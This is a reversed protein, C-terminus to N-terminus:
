DPQGRALLRAGRRVLAPTLHRLAAATGRLTALNGAMLAGIPRRCELWHRKYPDDGRGFDIEDVAQADLAARIMWATLVTGPSLDRLAEDHALKAITARRQWVLWIQAAVPQGDLAAVGMRVCGAAAMRRVFAGIFRPFPEADKWSRRHVDEYAAIAPELEAPTTALALTAGSRALFRRTRREITARLRGDRRALYAEYGIGSVREYWNGFQTYAQTWWGHRRLAAALLDATGDDARMTQLHLTDIRPRTAALAAALRAAQAGPPLHGALPTFDCSYFNTWSELHRGSRDRREALPAILGGDQSAVLFPRHRATACSEALIAFWTAGHFPSALADSAFRAAAEPPLNELAHLISVCAGGRDM